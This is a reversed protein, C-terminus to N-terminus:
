MYPRYREPDDAAAGRDPVRRQRPGGVSLVGDLPAHGCLQCFEVPVSAGTGSAPAVKM